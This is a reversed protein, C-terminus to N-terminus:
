LALWVMSCIYSVKYLSRFWHHKLPYMWTLAMGPASASSTSRVPNRASLILMLRSSGVASPSLFRAGPLVRSLISAGMRCICCPIETDLWKSPYSLPYLFGYLVSRAPNAPPAARIRGSSAPAGPAASSLVMDAPVMSCPAVWPIAPAAWSTAPPFGSLSICESEWTPLWELPNFLRRTSGAEWYLFDANTGAPCLVWIITPAM